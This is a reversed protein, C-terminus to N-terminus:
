KRLNLKTRVNMVERIYSILHEDNKIDKGERLSAYAPCYLLHSQTEISSCCSDCEWLEHEHKASFNFKVDLMKSRIQFNLRSDYLNMKSLYDKREFNEEIIPGNRLKSKQEIIKKLNTEEFDLIKSNVIKKWAFKPLKKRVETDFLNPLNLSKILEKCEPVLGPLHKEFQVTLMEKALSGEDLNLLHHLLSMKKKNIQMQMSIIGSDWLLAAHPTTRPVAFLRQLLLLQIDEVTKLCDGSMEVWMEANTLLSPLRGFKWINLGSMLGGASQMRIDEIISSLEFISSITRGKRDDITMKVSDAVGFSSIIEGLYKEKNKQKIIQGKVSLPSSSLAEQIEKIKSPKGCLLYSSKDNINLLKRKMVSEMINNGLQASTVSNTMRLCDDQYM